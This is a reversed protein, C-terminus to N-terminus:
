LVLQLDINFLVELGFEAFSRVMGPNGYPFIQYDDTAFAEKCVRFSEEDFCRFTQANDVRPAHLHTFLMGM